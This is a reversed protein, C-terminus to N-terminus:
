SEPTKTMADPTKDTMFSPDHDPLLPACAAAALLVVLLGSLLVVRKPMTM